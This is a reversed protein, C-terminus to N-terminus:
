RAYSREKKFRALAARADIAINEADREAWADPLLENVKEAMATGSLDGCLAIGDILGSIFRYKSHVVLGVEELIIDLSTTNLRVQISIMKGHYASVCVVIPRYLGM